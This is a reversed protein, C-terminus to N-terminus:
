VDTESPESEDAPAPEGSAIWGNAAAAWGLLTKNVYEDANTFVKQASESFGKRAGDMDQLLRPEEGRRAYNDDLIAEYDTDVFSGLEAVRVMAFPHTERMTSMFKYIGDLGSSRVYDDAQGRLSPIDIVDHRGRIGGAAVGLAGFAVQTDQVALLGARDCSIEAKRHWELLALTIPFSAQGLVPMMPRAFDLLLFLLTRYLTHDSLIHGVEHGISFKLQDPTSLEVLSSNLVVFPNDVGLAGANALPTQSIFLEPVTADLTECVENLMKHIDPYQNPGVKLSRAQYNLRINREDFMGIVKRLLTDFGPITQLAGLAARDTTHEWSAPSIQPLPKPM